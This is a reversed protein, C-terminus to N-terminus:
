LASLTLLSQPPTETMFASIKTMSAGGEHGLGRVFHGM